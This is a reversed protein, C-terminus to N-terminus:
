ERALTVLGAGSAGSLVAEADAATFNEV